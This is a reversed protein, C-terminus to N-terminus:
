ASQERAEADLLLDSAKTSLAKAIARLTKISPQRKGREINSMYTRDIGCQEALQEQSLDAEIRRIKIAKGLAAELQM